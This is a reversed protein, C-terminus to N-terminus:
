DRDVAAHVESQVKWFVVGSLLGSAVLVILVLATQAGTKPRAVFAELIPDGGLLFAAGCVICFPIFVLSKISVPGMGTDPGKTMPIYVFAFAVLIGILILAAGILRSKM